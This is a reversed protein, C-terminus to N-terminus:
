LAMSAAEYERAVCGSASSAPAQVGDDGFDGGGLLRVTIQVGKIDDFFGAPPPGVQAVAMLQVTGTVHELGGHGMKLGGTLARKQVDGGFVRVMDIGNETGALAHTIGAVRFDFQRQDLEPM